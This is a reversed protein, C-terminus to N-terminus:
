ITTNTLFPKFALTVFEKEDRAGPLKTPGRGARCRKIALELTQAEQQFGLGIGVRWSHTKTNPPDTHTNIRTYQNRCTVSSKRVSNLIVIINIVRILM